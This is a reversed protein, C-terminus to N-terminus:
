YPYLRETGYASFARSNHPNEVLEGTRTSRSLLVRVSVWDPDDLCGRPVTSRM